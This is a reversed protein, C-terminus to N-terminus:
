VHKWNKRHIIRWVSQFTIGYQTALTALTSKGSAYTRRIEVVDADSLKSQPHREGRLSPREKNTRGRRAMDAMNEATTGAYLHNPHCCPPNDCHHCIIAQDPIPGSFLEYAVRHALLDGSHFTIIGYGGKNTLAPWPWCGSSPPDGPMHYRFAETPTMNNPRKDRIPIDARVDGRKKWRLYHARCWGRCHTNRECGPVSCNADAM